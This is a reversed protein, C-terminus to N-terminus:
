LAACFGFSTQQTPQLVANYDLGKFKINAGDPSSQANWLDTINGQIPLSIEWTTSATGSNSVVVSSCYGSGWNSDQTVQVTLNGDGASQGGAGGQGEGGQGMGGQGGGAGGQGPNSNPEDEVNSDAVRELFHATKVLNQLLKDIRLESSTFGTKVEDVLCQNNPGEAVGYAFRVWQVAFCAAADPSKSLTQHLGLTGEFPGNTNPTALIEGSVNISKGNEETRFRAVGDFKEFGFGIPDILQHCGKCPEESSHQVYRERTTLNPDLPPPQVNFGAPPPPLDQCLVRTRVLKGRHIPSSDTPHAHTTLVSGQSLIGVRETEQLNLQVLGDPGPSGTLGYHAALEPSVLTTQTSFLAPLTPDQGRVVSRFYRRTEDRMALRLNQSFDPYVNGDKPVNTINSIALWQEVFRDLSANSRPDALLREVQNQLEEQLLLQGSDAKEFLEADPLTGWFLYSLESAVEHATLQVKGDKAQGGLESRYLFHPSQLMASLVTKAGEDFGDATSVATFLAKYRTPDGTTLPRRFVRKGMTHIFQDACTNADSNPDCPYVSSPNDFVKEAIEEAATRMQDAVLPSVVLASANNDFGNVVTDAGFAAGWSSPFGFLDTITSDYEARSLRRLMRNGRAPEQCSLTSVPSDCKGLTVRDVFASLAAYQPSGVDILEGGTHGEPHKGTPRLLLVSTGNVFTRAVERVTEFNQAIDSATEGPILVMNSQSALGAASHCVACQQALIPQYVQNQFFTLDDPCGVETDPTGGAGAEGGGGPSPSCAAFAASAIAAVLLSRTSRMLTCLRM